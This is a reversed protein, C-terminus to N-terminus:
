RQFFNRSMTGTPNVQGYETFFAEGLDEEVNISVGHLTIKTRRTGMYKTQMWLSMSSLIRIALANAEEEPTLLIDQM